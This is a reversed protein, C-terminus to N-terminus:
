SMFEAPPFDIEALLEHISQWTAPDQWEITVDKSTENALVSTVGDLEGVETEIAHTCHACNIAPVNVTKTNM